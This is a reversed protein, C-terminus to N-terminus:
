AITCDVVSPVIWLTRSIRAFTSCNQYVLGSASLVYQRELREMEKRNQKQEKRDRSERTRALEMQKTEKLRKTHHHDYSSLHEEIEAVSKYQKSCVQAAIVV